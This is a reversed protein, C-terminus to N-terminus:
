LVDLCIALGWLSRGKFKFIILWIPRMNRWRQSHPSQFHIYKSWKGEIAETEWERERERGRSGCKTEGQTERERERKVAAAEAESKFVCCPTTPLSERQSPDRQSLSLQLDFVSMILVAPHCQIPPLYLTCPHFGRLYTRNEWCHKWHLCATWETFVVNHPECHRNAQNM